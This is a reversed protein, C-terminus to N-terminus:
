AARTARLDPNGDTFAPRCALGRASHRPSPTVGSRQLSILYHDHDSGAIHTNRRVVQHPSSNFRSFRLEGYGACGIRGSFEDEGLSETAVNSVAECVAERWYAFHDRDPVDSTSWLRNTMVARDTM